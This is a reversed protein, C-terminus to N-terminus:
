MEFQVPIQMWSSVFRGNQQAPIWRKSKSIVRIAEHTFEPCNKVDKLVSVQSISGTKDVQFRIIVKGTLGEDKCREPYKLNSSMYRYFADTGGPYTAQVDVFNRVVNEISDTPKTTDSLQFTYNLNYIVNSNTRPECFFPSNFKQSFIGLSQFCLIAVLLRKM